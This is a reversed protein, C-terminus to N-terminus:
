RTTTSAHTAAHEEGGDRLHALQDRVLRRILKGTETYPLEAVFEVDEPTRSSRLRDRVWARLEDKDVSDTGDALVVAAAVREGWQQDPVGVVAAENVLPHELLADEIEGPSINEGGRVIVDDLRGELYLYGDDDLLGADHTPFWGSELVSGGDLYEGAIQEGRVYIEGVTHAPLVRGSADRIELELTPIPRGVSRLRNRIAPDDSAFATRHDGPSLIAITSSTETLGYANVFDTGPLLALAREVVPLPMRGGGYSLHRLAPLTINARELADLIRELM